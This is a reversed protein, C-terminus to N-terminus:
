LKIKGEDSSTEWINPNPQIVTNISTNNKTESCIISNIKIPAFLLKDSDFPILTKGNLDPSETNFLITHNASNFKTLAIHDEIKGRNEDFVDSIYRLVSRHKPNGINDLTIVTM